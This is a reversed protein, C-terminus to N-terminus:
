LKSKDPQKSALKSKMIEPITKAIETMVSGWPASADTPIEGFANQQSQNWNFAKELEDISLQGDNLHVYLRGQRLAHRKEFLRESQDLM